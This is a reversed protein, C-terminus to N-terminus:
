TLASWVGQRRKVEEEDERAGGGRMLHELTRAPIDGRPTLLASPKRQAGAEQAVEWWPPKRTMLIARVEMWDALDLLVADSRAAALADDATRYFPVPLPPSPALGPRSGGGGGGPGTPAQLLPQPETSREAENTTAAAAAPVPPPGAPHPFPIPPAVKTPHAPLLLAPTPRRARQCLAHLRPQPLGQLLVFFFFPNNGSENCIECLRM